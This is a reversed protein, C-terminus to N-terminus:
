RDRPEGKMARIEDKIDRQQSVIHGLQTNISSLIVELVDRRQYTRELATRDSEQQREIEDLKQEIGMLRRMQYGINALMSAVVLVNGLTVQGALWSGQDM